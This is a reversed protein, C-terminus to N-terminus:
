TVSGQQGVDPQQTSPASIATGTGQAQCQDSAAMAQDLAAAWGAIDAASSNTPSNTM